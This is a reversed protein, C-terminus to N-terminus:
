TTTATAVVMMAATCVALGGLFVALRFIAMGAQRESLPGHIALILRLLTVPATGYCTAKLRLDDASNHEVPPAKLQRHEVIRKISSLFLFSNLIAPLLIIAALVEVGGTIAIAGYMAGLALAGSDGPFIRSPLRHYKYFALSVVGLPLSALAMPYNQLIILCATLSFGAIVMFGSAVGNLIDISNITNGTVVIMFLVVGAYLVPIHVPGFFPFVLDTDYAGIFLIPLAAIALAVPKFWGGMVKKDDIYGVAFATSTTAVIALIADLQLFVYLIMESAVIGAVIVPGGPRPVMVIGKKNVDRVAINSAALFRILPPTLVTVVVFAVIASIVAYLVMMMMMMAPVM